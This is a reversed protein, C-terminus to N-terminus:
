CSAIAQKFTEFDPYYKSYLCNKKVFKGLVCATDRIGSGNLAMDVIKKKIEALCGLNTNDRIFTAHPCADNRCLYRQKGTESCGHKIVDSSDCYICRVPELVM